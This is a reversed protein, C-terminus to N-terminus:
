RNALERYRASLEAIAREGDFGQVSARGAEGVRARLEEDALLRELKRALEAADWAFLFGNEGDRVLDPMVGVPTSVVPVGCAMAEVAVRPGGEATSACVVVRARSYARAVEAATGVRPALEVSGALGLEAIRRELSARLPGEGLIRARVGPRARKVLAVADLLTEIGKNPVLRGVLLADVEKPEDPLPRFVAHDLYLSPLVVIKEDPVGLSRLLRPLETRNVTRFAAVRRKAWRVYLRALGRYLRERATAARPYGEVHHLESVWPIGTSRALLWAGAGNYFVGYDHSAVLAYPRERALEAGRRRVFLAQLARPVPAPHVFVNGHLAREASGPARPCLV